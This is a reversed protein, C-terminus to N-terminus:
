FTETTLWDGTWMKECVSVVASYMYPAPATHQLIRAKTTKGNFVLWLHYIWLLVQFVRLSQAAFRIAGVEWGGLRRWQRTHPVHHKPNLCVAM